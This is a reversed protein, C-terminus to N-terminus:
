RGQFILDIFLNSPVLRLLIHFKFICQVRGEFKWEACVQLSHAKGQVAKTMASRWDSNIYVYIASNEGSLFKLLSSAGKKFLQWENIKM